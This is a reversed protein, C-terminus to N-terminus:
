ARRAQETLRENLDGVKRQRGLHYQYHNKENAGECVEGIEADKNLYPILGLWGRRAASAYETFRGRTM